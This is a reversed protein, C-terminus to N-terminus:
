TEGPLWDGEAELRSPGLLQDERALGAKHRRGMAKL